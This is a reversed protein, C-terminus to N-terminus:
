KDLKAKLKAVESELATIRNGFYGHTIAADKFGTHSEDKVAKLKDTLDSRLQRLEKNLLDWAQDGAKSVTQLKKDQEDLKARLHGMADELSGIRGEASIGSSSSGESAM